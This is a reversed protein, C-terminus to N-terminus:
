AAKKEAKEIITKICSAIIGAPATLASALRAAPSIVLAAIRGQLEIRTPMKSLKEAATADLVSGELFAGKVDIAPIKKRWETIQKAVDVISDGGYAITCPGNFLKVAPEMQRSSLAKKFLANKVVLLGIRKKKLDGRMQNAEIGGVGKTSVVLFDTINQDTIRKELEAQLLGKVYKSM